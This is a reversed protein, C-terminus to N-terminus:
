APQEEEDTGVKTWANTEGFRWHVARVLDTENRVVSTMAFPTGADPMVMVNVVHNDWVKTVIAPHESSGNHQELTGVLVTEGLCPIRIRSKM